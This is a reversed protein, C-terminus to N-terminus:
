KLSAAERDLVTQLAQALFQVRPGFLLSDHYGPVICVELEGTLLRRWGLYTDPQIGLPQKEARFIVVKGDYPQAKYMKYTRKSMEARDMPNNLVTSLLPQASRNILKRTVLLRREGKYRLYQWRERWSLGSLTRWHMLIWPFFQEVKMQLRRVWQLWRYITPTVLARLQRYDPGYTDILIVLPVEEGEERLRAAMELAIKGGNSYGGLFYPGHPQFNKLERTYSQAEFAVREQAQDAGQLAHSYFTYFPQEEDMALALGRYALVDIITPSSCFFAPKNGYPQVGVLSPMSGEGRKRILDAQATVTPNEFLSAVPLRLNFAQEIKSFLTLALLSNGGLEFFNDDVQVPVIDLVEEWIMVLHQELSTIANNEGTQDTASSRARAALEIRDVKGSEMLPLEQLIEIYSPIMFAPIQDRLQFRVKSEDLLVGEEPVLFAALSADGHKGDYPITVAVRVGNMARLVEEVEGLLVRQGLIKIQSDKRGALYLFGDKGLYGLDDTLYTRQDGNAPDPIFRNTNSDDPKWYGKVLVQSRIQIEGVEGTPLPVGHEDVITVKKETGPVGVPLVEQVPQEGPQIIWRTVINAETCAYQHSIAYNGQLNARMLDIDRRYLRDGGLIVLRLNPLELVESQSELFARMVALPPNFVTISEQELWAALQSFGQTRVDFSLITAGTLLGSFISGLSAAFSAKFMCAIRDTPGYGYAQWDTWGRHLIDAHSELVAKPKGTSGSTYFLVADDDAAINAPVPPSKPPLFDLVAPIGRHGEKFKNAIAEAKTDWLLLESEAHELIPQLLHNQMTSDLAVYRKGAQLVALMSIIISPSHEQLLAITGLSTGSQEQIDFALNLVANMLASYSISEGDMVIADAHPQKEVIYALREPVSRRVWERDFDIKEETM